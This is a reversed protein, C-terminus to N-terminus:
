SAELGVAIAAMAREVILIHTAKEDALEFLDACDVPAGFRVV